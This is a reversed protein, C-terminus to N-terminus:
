HLCVKFEFIELVLLAKAMRNEGNSLPFLTSSFSKVRVIGGGFGPVEFLVKFFTESM